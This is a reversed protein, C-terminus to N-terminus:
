VIPSIHVVVRPNEKDIPFSNSTEGVYKRSDDPLVGAAVIGDNIFKKAFEVNDIDKRANPCYWDYRIHVPFETIEPVNQHACEMMVRKRKM